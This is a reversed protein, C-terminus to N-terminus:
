LSLVSFIGDESLVPMEGGKKGGCHALLSSYHAGSFFITGIGHVTESQEWNPGVAWGRGM